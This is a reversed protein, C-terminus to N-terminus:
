SKEQNLYKLFSNSPSLVLIDQKNNFVAQYALMSRYFAYFAPDKNYAEAYIQAAQKDGKARVDAAQQYAKALIVTADADAQARIAEADSQGNARSQAAAQQREARMRDFVATSVEPPLDIAKIRVDIVDIGVPKASQAATQQLSQMVTSRNDSVVDSITRTGFQARLSNNIQQQLLLEARMPDGGTANYFKALDVIRWKVYYDVIVDKKESTVIRSSEVDLTQLRANFLLVSSIVPIKVHLGPGFIKAQGAANTELKGLRAVLAAQGENVVFLSGWLLVIVILALTLFSWIRSTKM